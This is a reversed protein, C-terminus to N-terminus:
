QKMLKCSFVGSPTKLHAMYVGAQVGTSNWQITNLGVVTNLELRTVLNGCVDTIMVEASEQKNTVFQLYTDSDFPNPVAKFSKVPLSGEIIGTPLLSLPVPSAVSGQHLDPTFTM